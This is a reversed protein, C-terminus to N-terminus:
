KARAHESLNGVQQAYHKQKNCKECTQGLKAPCLADRHPWSLGYNRCRQRRQQGNSRPPNVFNAEEDQINTSALREAISKAQQESTELTV